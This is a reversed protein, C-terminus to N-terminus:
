SALRRSFATRTAIRFSPNEADSGADFASLAVEANRETTGLVLAIWADLLTNFKKNYRDSRREDLFEDAIKRARLPWIWIDPDLLVWHQGARFDISIRVAESWTV